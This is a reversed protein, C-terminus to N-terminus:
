DRALTRELAAAVALVRRDAGATGCVMLGVPAAGPAHCPLSAACGGLFNVIGNNRLIRANWRFYAEDSADAEEITPAICPVTPMLIADFPAALAEIERIFSARLRALAVYDAAALDRGLLVRKGVRPDFQALRELHPRHIEYAEAGSFGGARFYEDQRDFARVPMEAILAGAEALRALSADFAASVPKDLEELV